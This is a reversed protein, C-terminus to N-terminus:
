FEVPTFQALAAGTGSYCSVETAEAFRYFRAERQDYRAGTSDSCTASNCVRAVEGSIRMEYVGSPVTAKNTGASSCAISITGNFDPAPVGGHMRDSSVIATQSPAALALAPLIAFAAAGLLVAFAIFRRM